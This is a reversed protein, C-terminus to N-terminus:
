DDAIASRRRILADLSLPGAGKTVLIVLLLVWFSRQDLIAADPARDFWQGIATADVQHGYVDTLSQVTIFCIMGLAALRTFLGLAVLLPLLFESWGGFLVVLKPILGLQSADYGAAEIARPYIQAYAGISPTFPGDFKTVASSWFYSLLVAAFVFRALSPLLWDGILNLNKLATNLRTM